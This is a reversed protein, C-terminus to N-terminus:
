QEHSALANLLITAHPAGDEVSRLRITADELAAYARLGPLPKTWPASM